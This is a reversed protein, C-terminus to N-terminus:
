IFVETEMELAKNAAAVIAAHQAKYLDALKVGTGEPLKYDSCFDVITKVNGEVDDGMLCYGIRPIYVGKEGKFTEEADFRATAIYFEKANLNGFVFLQEARKAFISVNQLQGNLAIQIKKM